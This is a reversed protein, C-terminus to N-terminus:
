AYMSYPLNLRVVLVPSPGKHIPCHDCSNWLIRPIEQSSSSPNGESSPSHEMSITTTLETTQVADFVRKNATVDKLIDFKPYLVLQRRSHPAAPEELADACHRSPRV